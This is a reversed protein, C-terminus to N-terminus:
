YSNGGSTLNGHSAPAAAAATDRITTIEARAAAVFPLDYRQAAGAEGNQEIDKDSFSVRPAAM